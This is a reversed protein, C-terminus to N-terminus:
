KRLRYITVRGRERFLKRIAQNRELLKGYYESGGEAFLKNMQKLEKDIKGEYYLQSMDKTMSYFGYSLAVVLSYVILRVNRPRAYYNFTTNIYSSFSYAMTCTGMSIVIDLFPKITQRFKIEKAMGYLQANESLILSNLLKKGDESEWVVTDQNVRIRSKDVKDVDEYSFNLPLGVIVGFKSYSSGASMVDFGYYFFPKYLHKDKPNVDVLDLANQFREELKKSLPVFRQVSKFFSNTTFFNALVVGTTATGALYFCFKKGGDTLLWAGVKSVNLM